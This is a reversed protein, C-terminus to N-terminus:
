KSPAPGPDPGASPRVADDELRRRRYRGRGESAFLKEYKVRQDIAGRLLKPEWEGPYDEAEKVFERGIRRTIESVHMSGKEPLIRWIEETVAKWFARARVDKVHKEMRALEGAFRALEKQQSEITVDRADLLALAETRLGREVAIAEEMRQRDRELIAAAEAQAAKWIDSGAKALGAAVPDPMSGPGIIPSYQREEAWQALYDGVAQNNGAVGANRKVRAWVNRLGVRELGEAHIEDAAQFVAQRREDPTRRRPRVAM